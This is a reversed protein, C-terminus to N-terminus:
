HTFNIKGISIDESDDALIRSGLVTLSVFLLPVIWM